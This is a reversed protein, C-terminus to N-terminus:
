PHLENQLREIESLTNRAFTGASYASDVNLCAIEKLGKVALETIAKYGEIEEKQSEIQQEQYAIRELATRRYDAHIMKLKEIEKNKVESETLFSDHSVILGEFIASINLSIAGSNLMDGCVKKIEEVEEQTLIETM